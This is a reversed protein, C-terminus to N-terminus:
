DIQALQHNVTEIRVIETMRRRQATRGAAYDMCTIKRADGKALFQRPWGCGARREM